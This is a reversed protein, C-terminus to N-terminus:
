KEGREIEDVWCQIYMQVLEKVLVKDSVELSYDEYLKKILTDKRWRSVQKRYDDMYKFHLPEESNDEKLYNGMNILFDPFSLDYKIDLKLKKFLKLYRGELMNAESLLVGRVCGDKGIGDKHTHDLCGTEIEVDTIACKGDQSKLKEERYEQIDKSNRM